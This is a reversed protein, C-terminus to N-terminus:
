CYYSKHPQLRSESEAMSALQRVLSITPGQGELSLDTQSFTLDGTYLNLHEGFPTDGVPQITEYAKLRRLYEDGIPVEQAHAMGGTELACCVLLMTMRRLGSEM